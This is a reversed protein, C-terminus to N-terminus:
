VCLVDAEFSVTRLYSQKVKDALMLTFIVDEDYKMCSHVYEYEGLSTEGSLYDDVGRVQSPNLKM